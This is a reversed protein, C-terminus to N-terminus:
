LRFGETLENLKSALEALGLSARAISETNENQDGITATVQETSAATEQAISAIDNIAAFVQDTNATITQIAASIEVAVRASTRSSTVIGELSEGAKEAVERGARVRDTGDVMSAAVKDTESMIERILRSIQEASRKSNEALKGVEGAVVAFGKGHEGARAAEIAANLALLNTQDAINTIVDIIIGIQAFREGLGTVLLESKEVSAFIQEMAQVAETAAAGGAQALEATLESQRASVQGRESIGELSRAVRAMANSTEEAKRAQDESGTSIQQASATVEAISRSMGEIAEALDDASSLMEMSVSRIELMSDRLSCVLENISGGLEGIVDKTEVNVTATLDGKGRAIEKVELVMKLISGSIGRYAVTITVIGLIITVVLIVSYAVSGYTLIDAGTNLSERVYAAELRNLVAGDRLVRDLAADLEARVGSVASAPVGSLVLSREQQFLKEVGGINASAADATAQLGGLKANGVIANLDGPLSALGSRARDLSREARSYLADAERTQGYFLLAEAKRVDEVGTAMPVARLNVKNAADSWDRTHASQLLVIGGVVLLSGVICMVVMFTEGIRAQFTPVRLAHWARHMLDGV